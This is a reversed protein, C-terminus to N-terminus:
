KTVAGAEVLLEVLHLARISEELGERKIGLKMQLLCGPNPTVIISAKTDKAKEMKLDLIDM